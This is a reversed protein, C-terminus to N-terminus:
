EGMNSLSSARVLPDPDNAAAFFTNLLLNKYKPTLDGLEKTIKVLAEGVKTRVAMVNDQSEENEIKITKGEVMSFEKTLCDLVLDTRYSACAVLGSISSLYIYSDEDVLNSQFILRIKDINELTVSDKEELLRTLQILGHGQVPLLPDSINFLAEEYKNKFEHVKNKRQEKQKKLELSKLKLQEKREDMLKNEADVKMQNMENVKSKM